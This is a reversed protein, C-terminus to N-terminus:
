RIPRRTAPHQLRREVRRAAEHQITIPLPFGARAITCRLTGGRWDIPEGAIERGLFLPSAVVTKKNVASTQKPEANDADATLGRPNSADDSGSGGLNFAIKPYGGSKVPVLNQGIWLVPVSM